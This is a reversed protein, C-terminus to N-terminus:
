PYNIAEIADPHRITMTKLSSSRDNYVWGRAVMCAGSFDPPSSRVIPKLVSGFDARRMKLRFGPALKLYTTKDRNRTSKVCGKVRMFGGRNVEKAAVPDFYRHAWVGAGAAHAIKEAAQYCRRHKVNPPFTVAHAFGEAILQAALNEQSESYVHALVRGYHDKREEDYELGVKSGARKRLADRAQEALPEGPKDGRQLEPTNLGIIRIKTGDNLWLTDGDHIYSVQGWRTVELPKCDAAWENAAGAVACASCTAVAFICKIFFNSANRLVIRFRNLPFNRLKARPRARPVM